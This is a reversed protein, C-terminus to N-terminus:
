FYRHGVITIKVGEGKFHSLKDGRTMTNRQQTNNNDRAWGQLM